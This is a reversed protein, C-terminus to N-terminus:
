PAAKISAHYSNNYSFEALPLNKVWGKCFNIVCARLMDKLTQITRESQGDTEPHYATSMSIDTGLAKQFLRWFNSTFRGDRDCIISAPIGYRAVIRNLYLRALKDLPDNERIPLFHTSKTLRDMIVWITDFGQSPRPLKTIFDMTINDWKWEPIEPQVLLGIAKINPQGKAYVEREKFCNQIAKLHEEHEREDCTRKDTRHCLRSSTFQGYRRESNDKSIHERVRLPSITLKNLEHYDICMRSHGPRRKVILGLAGWPSSSPPASTSLLCSHPLLLEQNCLELLTRPAAGPIFDIQFEVPRAPPLGPLDEPFVEPFYRVIPVDKIQKRESKDEEKKASIKHPCTRPSPEKTCKPLSGGYPKREGTRINYVKAVNQRKFPQQQHSHNNISSDDAKRKNDFQWEAYTRLKQDMLDNALEITENLTKPRASKVNGYIYDLLGNIYKDVKETENAIFKTCILTLEQFRETYAPVDNGKVKLNWLEIELKKIEGQPCYKYTMKKKLIEWTMAYAEPGLTRILIHSDADGSAEQHNSELMQDQSGLEGSPDSAGSSDISEIMIRTLGLGRLRMPREEVMRSDRQLTMRDGMRLEVRQSDYRSATINLVYEGRNNPAIKSSGRALDVMNDRIGNGLMELGQRRRKVDRGTTSLIHSTQPRVTIRAGITIDTSPPPIVPETGEPPFVPEDVPIVIASDALALHEDEEDEEDKDDEDEGDADDGSSDRDDDDGDDGGDMPYDVPGDETEDDEYEEPDEEPDSETVYEPSDITPSDVPPLPQEFMPEREDEDQPVPPTQPDELGPIYDPSPPAVPQMPLGDYGLVIVWPIGGESIEEDDAGWFARGHKSDTYVFTYTVASTASSM